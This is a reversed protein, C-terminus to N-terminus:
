MPSLGVSIGLARCVDAWTRDVQRDPAGDPCAESVAWLAVPPVEPCRAAPQLEGGCGLPEGGMGVGRGTNSGGRGVKGM